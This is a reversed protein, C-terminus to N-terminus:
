FQHLYFVHVSTSKNLLHKCPHALLIDKVIRCSNEPIRLKDFDVLPNNHGIKVNYDAPTIDDMTLLSLTQEPVNENHEAMNIQFANDYVLCGSKNRTLV